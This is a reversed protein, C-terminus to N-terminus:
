YIVVNIETPAEKILKALHTINNLNINELIEQYHNTELTNYLLYDQIRNLKYDPTDKYTNFEKKLGEKIGTFLQKEIKGKSLLDIGSNLQTLLKNYDKNGTMFNINLTLINEPIRSIEGSVHINYASGSKDRIEKLYLDKLLDILINLTLRNELSNEVRCMLTQSITSVVNSGPSDFLITEKGPQPFPLVNSNYKERPLKQSPLSSIYTEILRDIVEGELGGVIIFDFDRANSFREKFLNLVKEYNIQGIDESELHEPIKEGYVLSNISDSLIKFPNSEQTKLYEKYSNEWEDFAKPNSQPSIFALYMLQLLNETYEKPASGTFKETTPEIVVNWKIGRDDSFRRIDQSSNEGFGGLKIVNNIISKYRYDEKEFLSYGGKSLASLSVSNDGKDTEVYYVTVGNSLFYKYAELEPIWESSIISGKNSIEPMILDDIEREEWKMMSYPFYSQNWARMLEKEIDKQQPITEKGNHRILVVTNEGDPYILEKIMSNLDSISLTDIFETLIRAQQKLPIIPKENIFNDIFKDSLKHKSFDSKNLYELKGKLEKIERDFEEPTIGAEYFRITEYILSDLGKKFNNESFVIGVTFAPINGAVTFYDNYSYGGKVISDSKWGRERLRYSLTSAVLERKLNETFFIDADMGSDKDLCLFQLDISNNKIGKDVAIGVLPQHFEEMVPLNFSLPNEALPVDSWLEKIKKEIECASIDGEIIVAQFDPRYWKKYYNILEIHPFSTISDPNGIPTKNRYPNDIELLQIAFQDRIRKQVSSTIHLEQIIVKREADIDESKFLIDRSWDRLILLCSDILNNDSSVNEIRFLTKDFSTVANLDAGFKIDKSQLYDILSRGPFHKTGKFAMHEMFHALGSQSDEENLSGAKEILYFSVHKSEPIERIYYTLGNYLRGKIYESNEDLGSYSSCYCFGTIVFLILLAIKGSCNM